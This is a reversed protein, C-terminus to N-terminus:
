LASKFRLKSGGEYMTAWPSYDKQTMILEM